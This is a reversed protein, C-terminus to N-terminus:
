YSECYSRLGPEPIWNGDESEGKGIGRLFVGLVLGGIKAEM